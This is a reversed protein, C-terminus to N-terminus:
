SHTFWPALGSNQAPKLDYKLRQERVRGLCTEAATKLDHVEAEQLVCLRGFTYGISHRAKITSPLYELKGANRAYPDGADTIGMEAGDLVDRLVRQEDTDTQAPTSAATFASFSSQKPLGACGTLGLLSLGIAARSWRASM